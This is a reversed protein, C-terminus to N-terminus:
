ESIQLQGPFLYVSGRGNRLRYGEGEERLLWAGAKEFKAVARSDIVTVRLATAVMATGGARVHALIQSAAHSPAAKM